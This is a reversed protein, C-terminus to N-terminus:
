QPTEPPAAQLSEPPTERMCLYGIPTILLAPEREGPIFVLGTVEAEVKPGADCAQRDAKGFPCDILCSSVQPPDVVMRKGIFEAGLMQM